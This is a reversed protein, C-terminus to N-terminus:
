LFSRYNTRVYGDDEYVFTQLKAHIIPVSPADRQLSFTCGAGDYFIECCSTGNRFETQPHFFFV